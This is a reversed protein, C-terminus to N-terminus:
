APPLNLRNMVIYRPRNKVSEYTKGLYLGVMGLVTIIIGSLFWISIFLSMWGSVKITSFIYAVVLSMAMIGAILVISLGLYVTLLLPKNSFALITQFALNLRKAFNYSSDKGDKRKLHIGEVIAKRFGVWHIMAPYYRNFDHMTAMSTVITQHYLCYNAISSDLHVGSLYSLIKYFLRSFLKKIMNDQRHKRSLLVIDYGQQAKELMKVMDAPNDQLDCDLTFVWEGSAHDLGCNIAYQQGFNRSLRIGKIRSDKAALAEIVQWSDDPSADEVLLIEYDPTIPQLTEQIRHVLEELLSSAGYVPSIVSIFPQHITEAIM